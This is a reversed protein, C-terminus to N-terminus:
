KRRRSTRRRRARSRRRGRPNSAVAMPASGSKRIMPMVFFYFGAVAAVALGTYMLYKKWNAQINAQTSSLLSSFRSQWYATNEALTQAAQERTMYQMYSMTQEELKKGEDTNRLSSIAASSLTPFLKKLFDNAADEISSGMQGGQQEDYIVAGIQPDYYGMQGDSCGMQPYGLQPYRNHM